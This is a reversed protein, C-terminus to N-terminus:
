RNGKCINDIESAKRVPFHEEFECDIEIGNISIDRMEKFSIYGWEAMEFDGNLIAYGWFLDQSDYECIYWDSGFIFFNLYVLKDKLNVEETEYLKPIKALREKTPVNWM